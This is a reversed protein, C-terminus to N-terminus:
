GSAKWRNGCITCECFTTMPEDASRTQAQSYSVKKQGCKPCKLATSVSKEGQAVMAKNMNEQQMKEDEARREPSALEKHTMVVLREASIEASLVRIRLQPNSKHKLNQYLSRLKNKYEPTTAGHKVFAAREIDISRKLVLTPSEESGYCLGNYMLGICSDRITDGTRKCDVGDKDKNRELPPVSSKAGAEEKPPSRSAAKKAKASGKVNMDSKWKSVIRSALLAVAKDPHSKQKNVAVGVRTSRLLEETPVVDKQLSELIAIINSIPQKEDVAKTLSRVRLSIEKVARADM